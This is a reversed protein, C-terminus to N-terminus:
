LRGHELIPMNQRLVALSALDIEAVVFGEEDDTRALIDGWPSIIMSGGWTPRTHHDRHCVNAGVVYCLTDIARARVLLEWHAKGTPATFASPAVLIEAGLRVMARYMEPFRLDYCVSLGVVGLPTDVVTLEDGRQYRDSERYNRAAISPDANAVSADFLHMKDYRAVECGEPDLLLSAAYPKTDGTNKFLPLTGGVVWLAHLRAQNALFWRAPGAATREQEAAQTLDSCNYYAFHEPLVVLRAGAAAAEKILDGARALNAELDGDSRLQVAAIKSM